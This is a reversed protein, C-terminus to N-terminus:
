SGSGAPPSLEARAILEDLTLRGSRFHGVDSAVEIRDNQELGDLNERPIGLSIGLGELVGVGARAIPMPVSVLWTRLGLARRVAMLLEHMTYREPEHVTYARATTDGAVLDCAAGVVTPRDVVSTRHRGGGILPLVPLRAMLAVMRGFLGGPGLVLGLSLVAHGREVFWVATEHKHRGYASVAGPIGSLSGIFLQRHVGAAHAQEAWM